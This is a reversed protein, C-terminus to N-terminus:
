EITIHHAEIVGGWLKTDDKIMRDMDAPTGSLIEVGIEAFRQKIDPSSLAQNLEKNLREVIPAPTGAPVVMGQWAFAIMGPVGLEVLTPVDPLAELRKPEAAALMRLKGSKMQQIGTTMGIFTLGIQGGLLDQTLPATGKYPVHTLPMGTRDRLLEMALHQPSGLGPSGYPVPNPSKKTWALLGAYSDVPIVQPNVALLLPFKAYLGVNTFDRSPNYPLNKQLLPNFVLTGNDAALLTYGDPASKAVADAGITSGGGPKNEVLVQQGLSTGLKEALLRVARDSGGGAPYPVIWHIPKSPWAQAHSAQTGAITLVIALARALSRIFHPM